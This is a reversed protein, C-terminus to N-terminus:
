KRSGRTCPSPLRCGLLMESSPAPLSCEAPEHAFHRPHSHAQTVPSTMSNMLRRQTGLGLSGQNDGEDRPSDGCMWRIHIERAAWARRLQMPSVTLVPGAPALGRWCELGGTDSLAESIFSSIESNPAVLLPPNGLCLCGLFLSDQPHAHLKCHGSSLLPVASVTSPSAGLDWASLVCPVSSASCPM